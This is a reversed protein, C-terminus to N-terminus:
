DGTQLFRRSKGDLVLCTLQNTLYAGTDINIRNPRIEPLEVPTHGHVVIKGFDERSELFDDKIWLLDEDNQEKLLVGPRVGAHAFYYDGFVFHSRLRKLFDDHRAPFNAILHERIEEVEQHESHHELSLGYSTLTEQGGLHSWREFNSEGKLFGLLYTEHNGRLFVREGGIVCLGALWDIVGHSDPGRDIYDGLYVEIAQRVPFQNVDATIRDTMEQLLDLRGHIDGLAYLRFGKPISPERPTRSRLKRLSLM